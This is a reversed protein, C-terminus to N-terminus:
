KDTLLEDVYKGCGEPIETPVKDILYYFSKEIRDRHSPWV